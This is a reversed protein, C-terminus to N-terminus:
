ETEEELFGKLWIRCKASGFKCECWKGDYGFQGAGWNAEDSGPCLKCLKQETAKVAANWNLRLLGEIASLDKKSYQHKIVEYMAKWWAVWSLDAM